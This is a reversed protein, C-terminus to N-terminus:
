PGVSPPDSNFMWRGRLNVLRSQGPIGAQGDLATARPGHVRVKLDAMVSAIVARWQARTYGSNDVNKSKRRLARQDQHFARQCTTAHGATFSKVAAATLHSCVANAPGFYEARLVARYVARIHSVAGGSAQAVVSIALSLIVAALTVRARM